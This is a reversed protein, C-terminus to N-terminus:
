SHIRLSYYRHEKNTRIYQNTEADNYLSPQYATTNNSQNISLRINRSMTSLNTSLARGDYQTIAIEDGIM